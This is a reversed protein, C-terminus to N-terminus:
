RPDTGCIPWSSRATRSSRWCARARSLIHSCAPTSLAQSTADTRLTAVVALGQEARALEFANQLTIVPQGGIGYRRRSSRAGTHPDLKSDSKQWYSGDAAVLSEFNPSAGLVSGVIESDVVRQRVVFRFLRRRRSDLVLLKVFAQEFVVFALGAGETVSAM